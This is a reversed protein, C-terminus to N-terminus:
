GNIKKTISLKNSNNEYAYLVEDALTFALFRGLGGIRHEHDYEAIDVVDATPDFPQGFDTFVLTVREDDVILEVTADGKDQEYAYSCINIFMEEAILRLQAKLDDSLSPEAFIMENVAVLNEAEAKVTISRRVPKQLVRMALITVDDHQVAGESFARISALVDDVLDDSPKGIHRKLEQELAETGYMENSCNVSENVGDTFLFLVDGPKLKVTKQEYELDRFIGTAVGAADDLMILQDSIIYPRNHGANSYTLECTQPDYIAAFTTIFMGNPNREALTNNYESLMKAPPYDLKAYQSLLTIARAMLLAASIGKGSVDAVALFIKDDSPAQYDYLDGGVNKAAHMCASISISENRFVPPKLLGAQINRAIDLEAEQKHREMNLHDIDRIYTDIEEAMTNFSRSMESFEDDGKVELKEYGKDRDAVFSKMKRSIRKIPDSIRVHLIVFIVALMILTFVLEYVATEFFRKQTNKMVASFSIEVGIIIPHDTAKMKHAQYDYLSMVPYYCILTDDFQNTEHAIVFSKDGNYVKIQEKSLTGEVVVGPYRTEKAKESADSGFGIALYKESRTEIDPDIAYIYTVDFTTCFENFRKSFAWGDQEGDPNYYMFREAMEKAVTKVTNTSNDLTADYVTRYSLYVEAVELLLVIPVIILSLKFIISKRM